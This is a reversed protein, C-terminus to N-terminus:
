TGSEFEWDTQDCTRGLLRWIPNHAAGALFSLFMYTLAINSFLSTPACRPLLKRHDKIMDPWFVARPQGAGSYLPTDFLYTPDRLPINDSDLYLVEEYSSLIM